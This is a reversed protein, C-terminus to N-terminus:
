PGSYREARVGRRGVCEGRTTRGCVAWLIKRSLCGKGTCSEAEIRATRAKSRKTPPGSLKRGREEKLPPLYLHWRHSSCRSRHSRIRPSVQNTALLHRYHYLHPSARQLFRRQKLFHHHCGTSNSTKSNVAMALGLKWAQL